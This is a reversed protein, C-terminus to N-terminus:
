EQEVRLSRVFSDFDPSVFVADDYPDDAGGHPDFWYVRGAKEGALALCILGAPSAAIPLFHPPFVDEFGDRMRWISHNATSPDLGYFVEIWVKEGGHTTDEAIFDGVDSMITGYKAVFARYGQPLTYGIRREFEAIEEATPVHRDERVYRYPLRAMVDDYPNSM